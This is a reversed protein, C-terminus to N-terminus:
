AARGAGALLFDCAKSAQSAAHFIALSDARLLDLWELLRHPQCLKSVTAFHACLFASTLEAILAERAFATDGFRPHQIRGLRSPHATWRALECFLTACYDHTNPFAAGSAIRIIDAPMDYCAGAGERIIAGNAALLADTRKWLDDAPQAQPRPAPLDACQEVNYLTFRKLFPLRNPDNGAQAARDREAKPIFSDAYCATTGQENARVRGGREQCQRETLWEPACFGRTAAADWLILINISSYPKRTAASRPIDFGINCGQWSKKVWPVHGQQMQAIVRATVEEYLSVRSEGGTQQQLTQHM